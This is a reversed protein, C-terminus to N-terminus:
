KQRGGRLEQIAATAWRLQRGHLQLERWLDAPLRSSPNFTSTEQDLECGHAELRLAQHLYYGRRLQRHEDLTLQHRQPMSGMQRVFLPFDKGVARCTAVVDVRGDADRPVEFNRLRESLVAAAERENKIDIIPMNEPNRRKTEILWATYNLRFERVAAATHGADYLAGLLKCPNEIRGAECDAVYSRSLGLERAFAALSKGARLPPLPNSPKMEDM